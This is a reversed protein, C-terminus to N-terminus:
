APSKGPSRHRAALINSLGAAIFAPGLIVDTKPSYFESDRYALVLFILWCGHALVVVNLVAAVRAVFLPLKRIANM